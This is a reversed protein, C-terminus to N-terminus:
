GKKMKKKIVSLLITPNLSQLMLYGCRSISKILVVMVFYTFVKSILSAIAAGVVGYYKIFFINLVINMIAGSLNLGWIKAHHENAVLWIDRGIGLYSFLPAWALVKLVNSAAIFDEGCLLLIIEDSFIFTVGGIILSMYIIISFLFKTNKEFAEEDTLKSELILPRVSDIIAIYVFNLLGACKLAAGYIGTASDDIMLKLMIKDTQSFITVMIGSLIFYKGKSILMKCINKNIGLSKGTIKKFFILGGIAIVGFDISFSLAFWYVEAKCILLLIKYGSVVLYAVISLVSIYKSLLVTQFWYTILQVAQFFLSIGYVACCILTEKEGANVFFTFLLIAIYCIASSILSLVIASGLVEGEKDRSNIVEQVIIASLGLQAIPLVFNVLSAVYDILGSNATGLYRATFASIVLGLLAQIVKSGIIWIFNSFAKGTTLNSM